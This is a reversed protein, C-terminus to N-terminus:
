AMYKYWLTKHWETNLTVSQVYLLFNDQFFIAGLTKLWETGLTVSPMYIIYLKVYKYQTNKYDLTNTCFCEPCKKGLTGGGFTVSPV